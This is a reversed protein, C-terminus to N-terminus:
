TRYKSMVMWGHVTNKKLQSCTLISQLHAGEKSRFVHPVLFKKWFRKLLKCCSRNTTNQSHHFAGERGWAANRGLFLSSTLNTLYHARAFRNNFLKLMDQIGMHACVAKFSPNRRTQNQPEQEWPPFRRTSIRARVSHQYTPFVAIIPTGISTMPVTAFSPLCWKSTILDLFIMSCAEKAVLYRYDHIRPQLNAAGLIVALENPRELILLIDNVHQLYMWNLIAVELSRVARALAGKTDTCHSEETNTTLIVRRMTKNELSTAKNVMLISKILDPHKEVTNTCLTPSQFSTSNCIQNCLM